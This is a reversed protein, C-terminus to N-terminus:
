GTKKDKMCVLALLSLALAAICYPFLIIIGIQDSLWGSMIPTLVMALTMVTNFVGTSSGIKDPDSLELMYPYLNVIVAAFGVGVLLFSIFMLANLGSQLGAVTFATGMTAVGILLSTKRRLKASLKAVPVAVICAMVLTMAQPLVFKDKSLHLVEMAYNSLSSVLGNYAVYFFFVVCLLMRRNFRSANGSQTSQVADSDENMLIASEAAWQKERVTFLYLVILVLMVASTGYFVTEYGKPAFISVLLIGVVTCVISVIQTIANASRRQSLPTMDPLLSLSAPRSIAIFGLASSLLILFMWKAHMGLFLGTVAWTIVAGAGGIIIFPSRKGFRTQSRDSLKGFLPLLFLGLINDIAMVIGKATFSLALGGDAIPAVLFVPLGNDLVSNFVSIWAYPLSLLLIRAIGLAQQEKIKPPSLAATQAPSM